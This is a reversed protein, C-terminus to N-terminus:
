GLAALLEAVYRTDTGVLFRLVVGSATAVEVLDGQRRAKPAASAVVEVPLFKPSSASSSSVRRLKTYLWYQFTSFSIDHKAVFEKQSLGSRRFEEILQPWEAPSPFRM